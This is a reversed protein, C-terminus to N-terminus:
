LPVAGVMEVTAGADPGVAPPVNNVMVPEFKKAPAVTLTPPMGAVIPVTAAPDITAVVLAPGGPGPLTTTVFGSM